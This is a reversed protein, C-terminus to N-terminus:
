YAIQVKKKISDCIQALRFPKRLIESHGITPLSSLMGDTVDFATMLVIKMDPTIKLIENAFEIGSMYPMRVDTLVLSYRSPGARFAELAKVPDGYGETDFKWVSLYREVMIRLDPEDDVVMIVPQGTVM